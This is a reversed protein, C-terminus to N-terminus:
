AAFIIYAAYRTSLVIAATGRKEEECDGFSALRRRRGSRKRGTAFIGSTTERLMMRKQWMGSWVPAM